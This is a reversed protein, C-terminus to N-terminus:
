FLVSNVMIVARVLQKSNQVQEIAELLKFKTTMLLPLIKFVGLSSPLYAELNQSFRQLMLKNRNCQSSIRDNGGRVSLNKFYCEFGQYVKPLNLNM